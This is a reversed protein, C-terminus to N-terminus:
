LESPHNKLAFLTTFFPFSMSCGYIFEIASFQNLMSHVLFGSICSLHHSFVVPLFGEAFIDRTFGLGM